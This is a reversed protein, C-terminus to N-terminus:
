YRQKLSRMLILVWDCNRTEICWLVRSNVLIFYLSSWSKCVISFVTLVDNWHRRRDDSWFKFYNKRRMVGDKQESRFVSHRLPDYRSWGKFVVRQVRLFPSKCSRSNLFCERYGVDNRKSALVGNYENLILRNINTRIQLLFFIDHQAFNWFFKWLYNKPIKGNMKIKKGPMYIIDVYSFIM